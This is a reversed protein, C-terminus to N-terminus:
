LYTFENDIIHQPVNWLGQSGLFPVPVILRVNGIRWAFRGPGYNGFARDLESFQTPDNGSVCDILEGVALIKGLTEGVTREGVSALAPAPTFKAKTLTDHADIFANGLQANWKRSAHIAIPGRYDTKWSRTEHHKAQIALLTAWPQWITIAKM